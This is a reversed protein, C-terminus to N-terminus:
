LAKTLGLELTRGAGIAVCNLPEEAIFVPLGTEKRIVEDLGQLLSGGGTMAIGKDVLDAALEPPTNELATTVAELIAGVPDALAEAIQRESLILEKPVGDALGRGKVSITRGAGNEPAEAAGIEKKIREATAEGILLNHHRRIYGIIADDMRDGGVRASGSYVIGGLSLVAVETTGGGIDVVMSGTAKSVPLGAGIAAAMPEEILWVRRAGASEAAEQIARREVATSGSPVCVVVRPSTFSTRPTAKKIFEKIMEEAVEFDAIVGDRLPRIASITDPTRGLMEKAEKGVAITQRRGRGASSAVVSPENLIIGRRPVFVLTNATGLDIAIDTSLRDFVSTFM